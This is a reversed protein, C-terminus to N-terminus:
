AAWTTAVILAAASLIALDLLWGKDDLPLINVCAVATLGAFVALLAFTM